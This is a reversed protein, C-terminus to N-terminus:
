TKSWTLLYKEAIKKYNHHTEIFANAQTSITEIQKPNNILWELTNVLYIVDPLANIAVTNEKLNYYELWEKEAGTFIIKGKAMAELANYGQDYSYVQDLVIHAKDYSKIYKKYPLDVTSTISIQNAYKSKIITLAETFFDAGKKLSSTSNIGHFINIKDEIKIPKFDLLDTNIPNPILGLYKPNDKFARHYDIDSCIIGNINHTVYEHLNKYAKNTYKLSFEFTHKLRKDKLYPSLVSYGNEPNLFYNVTTYDEGCCLLFAKKNQKFLQSYLKISQKPNAGIADENILQVVDFNSLKPLLKKFQNAYETKIFDVGLFKISLKNLFRFLKYKKIKSILLFDSEFQKLGDGSSVLTVQHGLAVLGEKLSNHLRSYEGILLIRM